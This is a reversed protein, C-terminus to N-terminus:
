GGTEPREIEYDCAGGRQSSRNNECTAHARDLPLITGQASQRRAPSKHRRRAAEPVAVTVPRAARAGWPQRRDAERRTAITEPAPEAVNVVDGHHIQDGAASRGRASVLRSCGRCSQPRSPTASVSECRASRVRRPQRPAGGLQSACARAATGRNATSSTARPWLTQNSLIIRLMALENFRARLTVEGTLRHFNGASLWSSRVNVPTALSGYENFIRRSCRRRGSVARNTWEASMSPQGAPLGASMGSPFRRRVPARAAAPNVGRGRRKDFRAAM